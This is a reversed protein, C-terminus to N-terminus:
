RNMTFTGDNAGTEGYGWSGDMTNNVLDIKASVNYKVGPESEYSYIGVFIGNTIGWTGTGMTPTIVTNSKVVMTGNNNIVFCYYSNPVSNGAGYKGVWEGAATPAIDENNKKCSSLSFLAVSIIICLAKLNLLKM